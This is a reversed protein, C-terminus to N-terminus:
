EGSKETGEVAESWPSGYLMGTARRTIGELDGAAVLTRVESADLNGTIALTAIGHVIAWGAITAAAVDEVAERQQPEDIGGRLVSFTEHRAWSLEPESEDLLDPRFMVAFLAPHAVAFRVYAVGMELFSGTEDRATRLADALLEHGQVALANLVGERSGFHHRFATHSVGLDSAISRLSLGATGDREIVSAAAALVAGRLEGHHYSTM